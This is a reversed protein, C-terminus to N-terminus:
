LTEHILKDIGLKQRLNYCNAWKMWGLTSALSSRFQDRTVIGNNYLYPLQKIRKKVRKTTSKRLLIFKRFHRYGLFDVGRSVQFIDKKSLKLKLETNIFIEMDILINHLLDKDNSFLLFDDCYRIYDKIKYVNKVRQDLENLYLNGFWQSTYNGIPVNTEGGISYIINKLLDLVDQDKIKRCIIKYLVDHNMSPYFKAMDGKLCYKNRRVYEITKKSGAHIGKNKRCAYSDSIFLKEWIPELINMIAHQVIRDPAFPLKYILREKPEYIKKTVYGSTQYTKDILMKQIGLLNEELNAEFKQVTSQWSKGKKAKEYALRINELETIKGYLNGYRKMKTQHAQNETEKSVLGMRRRQIKGQSLAKTNLWSNGVGKNEGTDVGARRGINTNTNWRYNNANRSRSRCYTGNDWNSGALLLVFARVFV